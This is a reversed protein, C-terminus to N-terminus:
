KTAYGQPHNTHWQWASEVIDKLQPYKPAWGLVKRAKDSSAVLTSPDGPRRGGVTTPIAHGTVERAVEIVERITYGKGNGLNIKESQGGGALHDLALLHAQGLDEIHIYDRVCTGDSTPYDEGFITISERQGLAVQLVIPIIHTEPTHDEGREPAGGAANFYRLCISKIGYAHDYAALIKEVMLKSEGYPNTPANPHEEDIPNYQPEGYTAATSSFVFAKVGKENMVDLLRQANVVNNIFYKDPHAVSEPVSAFAAFHIVATVNHDDIIKGVLAKDATDGEYLKVSPDLAEPHGACLNDLVVVEDGRKRLLEVTASGIYGAGGTVLIAMKM